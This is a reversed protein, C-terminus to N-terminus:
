DLFDVNVLSNYDILLVDGSIDKVRLQKNAEDYYHIVGEVEEIFGEFWLTFILPLSYEMSTHIREDIERLQYEDLLPKSTRMEDIHMEKLKEVHEPMFFGQWKINGRDKIDM